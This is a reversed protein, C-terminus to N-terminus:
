KFHCGKELVMNPFPGCITSGDLLQWVYQEHLLQNVGQQSFNTHNPHSSAWSCRLPMSASSQRCALFDTIYFFPCFSHLFASLIGPLTIGTCFRPVQLPVTRLLGLLWSTRLGAIRVDLEKVTALCGQSAEWHPEKWHQFPTLLLCNCLLVVALTSPVMNIM